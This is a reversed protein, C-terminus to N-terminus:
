PSPATSISVAVVPPSLVLIPPSPDVTATDFSTTVTVNPDLEVFSPLSSSALALLLVVEPSPPVAPPPPVPVLSESAVSVLPLSSVTVTLEPPAVLVIAETVMADVIAATVM